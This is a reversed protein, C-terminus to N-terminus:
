PVCYRVAQLTHSRPSVTSTMVLAGMWNGPLEELQVWQAYRHLRLLTGWPTLDESAGGNGLAWFRGQWRFWPDGGPPDESVSLWATKLGRSTVSTGFWPVEGPTTVALPRSTVEGFLNGLVKLVRESGEPGRLVIAPSELADGAAAGLDVLRAEPNEESPFTREEGVPQLANDFRQLRLLGETAGEKIEQVLVLFGGDRLGMVDVGYLVKDEALAQMLVRPAVVGVGDLGALTGWLERGGFVSASTDRWAAFVRSGDASVAAATARDGVAQDFLLAGGEPEGTRPVRHGQEDLLVLHGRTHDHNPGASAYYLAPGQSTRLLRTSVSDLSVSSDMVEVPVETIGLWSLATDLQIVRAVYERDFVVALVGNTVRLSSIRGAHPPLGLSEVQSWSLPDKVGDCDNDLGDCRTEAAEYHTGYSLATCVPEYAGDVVARRAGACIGETRECPRPEGLSGADSGADVQTGGDDVQTGSDVTTGADVTGADPRPNSPPDSDECGGLMGSGVAVVVVWLRAWRMRVEM